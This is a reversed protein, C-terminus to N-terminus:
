GGDSEFYRANTDHIHAHWHKRAREADNARIFRLLKAHSRSALRRDDADDHSPAAAVSLQHEDILECIMDSFLALTRVGAAQVVGEHFRVAASAWQRADEVCATEADLLRELM